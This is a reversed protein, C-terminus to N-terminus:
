IFWQSQKLRELIEVCELDGKQEDCASCGNSFRDCLWRVVSIIACNDFGSGIAFDGFQLGSRVCVCLCVASRLFAALRISAASFSPAPLEPSASSLCHMVRPPSGLVPLRPLTHCVGYWSWHPLLQIPVGENGRGGMEEVVRGGARLREPDGGRSRGEPTATSAPTTEPADTLQPLYPPPTNELPLESEVSKQLPFFSSFPNSFVRYPISRTETYWFFFTNQM